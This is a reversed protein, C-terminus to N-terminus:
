LGTSLTQYSAPASITVPQYSLTMDTTGTSSTNKWERLLYSTTDFWAYQMSSPDSSDVVQYELCTLSGCASSGIKKYSIGSATVGINMSSTPNTPAPASTGSPYKVWSGNLEVYTANQLEVSSFQSGNTTGTLSTDGKGDSELTMQSTAGSETDTIVGKYSVKALSTSNAAFRCLDSDHYASLCASDSSTSVSASPSSKPSNPSKKAHVSYSYGAYGIAALVVVGLLIEVIMAVGCESSLPEFVKKM